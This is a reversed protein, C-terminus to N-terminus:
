AVEATRPIRFLGADADPTFSFEGRRSSVNGGSTSLDVHGVIEDANAPEAATGKLVFLYRGSVSGAATFEIKSCKFVAKTSTVVVSAGSIAVPAYDADECEALIDEYDIHTARDPTEDTTALVAYYAGASTWNGTGLLSKFGTDHSFFISVAM